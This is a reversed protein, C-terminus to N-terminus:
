VLEEVIGAIESAVLVIVAGAMWPTPVAFVLLVYGSIRAASKWLSLILHKKPDPIYSM